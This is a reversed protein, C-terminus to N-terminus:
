YMVKMELMLKEMETMKKSNEGARVFVKDNSSDDHTEFSAVFSKYVLAADREEERRKEEKEERAKQFRSKKQQGLAFSVLKSDTLATLLHNNAHSMRLSHRTEGRRALSLYGLLAVCALSPSLKAARATSV